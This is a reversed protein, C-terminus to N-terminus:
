YRGISLSSAARKSLPGVFLPHNTSVTIEGETKFRSKVPVEGVSASFNVGRSQARASFDGETKDIKKSSRVSVTMTRKRKARSVAAVHFWGDELWVHIGEPAKEDLVPAGVAKTRDVKKLPPEKPQPAALLLLAVFLVRM